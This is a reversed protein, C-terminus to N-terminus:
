VIPFVIPFCWICRHVDCSVQTGHSLSTRAPLEPCLVIPFYWIYTHMSCSFKWLSICGNLYFCTLLDILFRVSNKFHVSFIDDIYSFEKFAKCSEIQIYMYINKLNNNKKTFYKIDIKQSNNTHNNVCKYKFFTVLLKLGKLCCNM